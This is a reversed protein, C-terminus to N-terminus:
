KAVQYEDVIIEPSAVPKVDLGGKRRLVKLGRNALYNHVQEAPSSAGEPVLVVVQPVNEFGKFNIKFDNM